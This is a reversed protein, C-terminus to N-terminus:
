KFKKAFFIVSWFGKINIKSLSNWQIFADVYDVDPGYELKLGSKCSSYKVEKFVIMGIKKRKKKKQTKASAFARCAVYIKERFKVKPM